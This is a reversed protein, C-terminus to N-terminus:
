YYRILSLQSIVDQNGIIDKFDKPSYKELLNIM